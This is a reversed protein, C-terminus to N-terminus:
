PWQGDDNTNIKDALEMYEARHFVSESYFWRTYMFFLLAYPMINGFIQINFVHIFLFACLKLRNNKGKFTHICKVMDVCNKEYNEM